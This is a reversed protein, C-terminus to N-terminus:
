KFIAYLIVAVGGASGVFRVVHASTTDTFTAGIGAGFGAITLDFIPLWAPMPSANPGGTAQVLLPGIAIILGAIM